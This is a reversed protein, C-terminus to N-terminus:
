KAWRQGTVLASRQHTAGADYGERYAEWGRRDQSIHQLWAQSPSYGNAAMRFGCRYWLALRPDQRFHDPMVVVNNQHQDERVQVM